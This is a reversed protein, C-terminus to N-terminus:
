KKPRPMTALKSRYEPYMTAAGGRTADEPLNHAAAFDKLSPNTGSKEGAALVRRTGPQEIAVSGEIVSVMSGAPIEVGRLTVPRMARRATGILPPEWRLTEELAWVAQARDAKVEELQDPHTLLAFLM